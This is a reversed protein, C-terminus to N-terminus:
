PIADPRAPHWSFCSANFRHCGSMDAYTVGVALSIGIPKGIFHGVTTWSICEDPAFGNKSPNEIGRNLGLAGPCRPPIGCGAQLAGARYLPVARDLGQGM